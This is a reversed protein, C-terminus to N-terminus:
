PKREKGSWPTVLMVVPTPVPSIEDLKKSKKSSFIDEIGDPQCLEIKGPNADNEIRSKSVDIQVPSAKTLMSSSQFHCVGKVKRKQSKGKCTLASNSLNREPYHESHVACRAELFQPKRVFFNSCHTKAKQRKPPVRMKLPLFIGHYLNIYFFDCINSILFNTEPTVTFSAQIVSFILGQHFLLYYYNIKIYRNTQAFTTFNRRYNGISSMKKDPCIGDVHRNTKFTWYWCFISALFQSTMTVINQAIVNEKLVPQTLCLKARFANPFTGKTISNLPFM